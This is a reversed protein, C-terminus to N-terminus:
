AAILSLSTGRVAAEPTAAARSAALTPRFVQIRNNGEDSVFVDGAEDVALYIPGTFQSPDAGSSGWQALLTGDPAFVEVRDSGYDAVYLNGMEDLVLGYLLIFKGPGAGFAGVSGAIAGTTDFHFVVHKGDDSIYVSGGPGVAVDNPGTLPGGEGNSGDWSALFQGEASFVQVRANDFDAAYVKGDPGVAIGTVSSFQGNDEGETGWERLFNRDVDFQQIRHNFTDAVYISGDPGIALDGWFGDPASFKFQGQASGSEGWTAVGNGDQDFIRIRDNLADVVYLQGSPDLAVGSVGNIPEDGGTIERVLTAGPVSIQPTAAAPASAAREDDSGGIAFLSGFSTGLYVVGATVVIGQNTPGDIPFRWIETGTEADVAYFNRDNSPFYLM